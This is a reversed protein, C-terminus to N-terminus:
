RYETFDKLAARFDRSIWVRGKASGPKRRRSSGRVPHLKVLPKNDRAIVVEEGAMAKRILSSFRAKAKAVNIHTM